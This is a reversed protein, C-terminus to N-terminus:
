SEQDLLEEPTGIMPPELGYDRCVQEIRPRQHLNALHRCNWTLLYQIGQVAAIGVHAADRIANPPIALESVLRMALAQAEPTPDLVPIGRMVAMREVAASPDGEAVEAAVVSSVYIDYRDRQAWWERTIQQHAARIVDGAPRAALYSIVTTEIYVTPKM